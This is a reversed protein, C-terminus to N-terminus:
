FWLCLFSFLHLLTLLRLRLWAFRFYKDSISDFITEASLGVDLDPLDYDLLFAPDFLAVVLLYFRDRFALQGVLDHDLVQIDLGIVM